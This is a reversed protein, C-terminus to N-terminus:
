GRDREHTGPRGGSKSILRIEDITLEKDIGKLMDYITLCAISVATLAEMEVGTRDHAEAVCSVTVIGTAAEVDILLEVRTLGIPHCLPILESTKKAAMVGAVRATALVEGKPTDHRTLRTATDPRMRVIGTATARRHTIAKAGVDVMTVEGAANLHGSVFGAPGVAAPPPSAFPGDLGATALPSRPPPASSRTGPRAGDSRDHRAEDRGYGAREALEFSLAPEEAPPRWSGAGRPSPAEAPRERHRERERDAERHRAADQEARAAALQRQKGSSGKKARLIFAAAAELRGPDNHAISRRLVHVLAFRDLARLKTWQAPSVARKAGLAHNLQEPPTLPDPDSVPKIRTAPPSARRVVREVATADVLDEAGALALAERQPVTLAQYAELSLRFGSADLARRAALPLLSLSEGVDEFPYVASPALEDM